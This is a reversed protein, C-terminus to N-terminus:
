LSVMLCRRHGRQFKKSFRRGSVIYHIMFPLLLEFPIEGPVNYWDKYPFSAKHSLFILFGAKSNPKLYKLKIMM